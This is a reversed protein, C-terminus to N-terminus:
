FRILHLDNLAISFKVRREFGFYVFRLLLFLYRSCCFYGFRSCTMLHHVLNSDPRFYRWFIDLNIQKNNIKDKKTIKGNQLYLVDTSIFSSNCICKYSIASFKSHPSSVQLSVLLYPSFDTKHRSKPVFYKLSFLFPCMCMFCCCCLCTSLCVFVAHSFYFFFLLLLLYIFLSSHSSFWGQLLTRLNLSLCPLHALM